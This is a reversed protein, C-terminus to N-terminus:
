DIKEEDHLAVFTDIQGRCGHKMLALAVAEEDAQDVQVARLSIRTPRSAKPQHYEITAGESLQGAPSLTLIQQGAPWSIRQKAGDRSTFDLQVPMGFEPRWLMLPTDPSFCAPGSSSADLHWISTFRSVPRPPAGRTAGLGRRTEALVIEAPRPPADARFAGPGRFVRTGSARLISVSDGRALRLTADDPLRTGVPYSRASPGVARIILVDAAAATASCGLLLVLGLRSGIALDRAMNRALGRSMDNGREAGRRRGGNM